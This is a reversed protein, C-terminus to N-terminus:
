DFVVTKNSYVLIRNELHWRVAQSLALKELDQGKRVLDGVTHRHSVRDVAQHIIPGQDLDATAYHATAGILKVGREHAQHYPRAGAFAPLFSHHINIVPAGCARLFGESLIQMYRALVILDTGSERIIALQREEAQKRAAASVPVFHFPVQYSDAAARLDEHNSIVAVMECPMEDQRWRLLLDHFVHDQKSVMVVVRPRGASLATRVNMGIGGAFEEFTRAQRRLDDTPHTWEVRQFFIGQESDRHQDAHIINGGEDYIWGAVKAVIGRHDDGHLLATISQPIEKMIINFGM